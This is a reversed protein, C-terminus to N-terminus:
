HSALQSDARRNGFKYGARDNRDRIGDMVIMLFVPHLM